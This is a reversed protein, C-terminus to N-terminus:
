EGSFGDVHSQRSWHETCNSGVYLVEWGDEYTVMFSMFGAITGDGLLTIYKMDPLKMEKRKKSVSWSLDSNDYDHASTQEILKLCQERRPDPLSAADDVIVSDLKPDSSLLQVRSEHPEYKQFFEQCSLANVTEVLKPEADARDQSKNSSPRVQDRKVRKSSSM